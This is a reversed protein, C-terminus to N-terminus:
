LRCACLMLGLRLLRAVAYGPQLCGAAAAVRVRGFQVAEWSGHHRDIGRRARPGGRGAPRRCVGGGCWGPRGQCQRGIRGGGRRRPRGHSV